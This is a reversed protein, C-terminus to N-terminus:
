PLDAAFGERRCASAVRANTGGHAACFTHAAQGCVTLRAGGMTSAVDAVLCNGAAPTSSSRSLYFASAAAIVVVSILAVTALLRKDRRSFPAKSREWQGEVPM